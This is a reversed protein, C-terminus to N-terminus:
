LESSSKKFQKSHQLLLVNTMILWIQAPLLAVLQAYIIGIDYIRAIISWLAFFLTVFFLIRSVRAIEQHKKTYSIFLLPLSYLVMALVVAINHIDFIFDNVHPKYSVWGVMIFCCGAFFTVVSTHRWYTNLHRSYLYWTIASLTIGIGFLWMTNPYAGFQSIPESWDPSHLISLVVLCLWSIAVTIFGFSRTITNM